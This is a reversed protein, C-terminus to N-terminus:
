KTTLNLSIPELYTILDFVIGRIIRYDVFLVKEEQPFDEIARCILKEIVENINSKEETLVIRLTRLGIPSAVRPTAKIIIEHGELEHEYGNEPAPSLYYLKQPIEITLEETDFGQELGIMLKMAQFVQKKIRKDKKM